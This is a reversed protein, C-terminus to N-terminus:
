ADIHTDKAFHGYRNTRYFGPLFWKKTVFNAEELKHVARSAEARSLKHKFSLAVLSTGNRSISKLIDRYTLTNEPSLPKDLLVMNEKYETKHLTDIIRNTELYQERQNLRRYSKSPPFHKGFRIASISDISM